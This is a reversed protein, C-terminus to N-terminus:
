FELIERIFHFDSIDPRNAEPRRIKFLSFRLYKEIVPPFQEKIKKFEEARPNVEYDENRRRTKERDVWTDLLYTKVIDINEEIPTECFQVMEKIEENAEPSSLYLMRQTLYNKWGSWNKFIDYLNIEHTGINVKFKADYSESEIVEAVLRKYKEQFEILSTSDSETKIKHQTKTLLVLLRTLDEFRRADKSSLTSQNQTEVKYPVITDNTRSLFNTKLLGKIVNYMITPISSSSVNLEDHVIVSYLIHYFLDEDTQVQKQDNNQIVNAYAHRNHYKRLLASIFLTLIKYNPSTTKDALLKRFFTSLLEFCNSCAFCIILVMRLNNEVYHRRLDPIYCFWSLHYYFYLPRTTFRVFTSRQDLLFALSLILACRCFDVSTLPKQQGGIFERLGMMNNYKAEQQLKDASSMANIPMSVLMMADAEFLFLNKDPVAIPKFADVHHFLKRFKLTYLKLAGYLIGFLQGNCGELLRIFRYKLVPNSSGYFTSMFTFVRNAMEPVPQEVPLEFGLKNESNIYAIYLDNAQTREIQLSRENDGLQRKLIEFMVKKSECVESLTKQHLGLIATHHEAMYSTENLQKEYRVSFFNAMLFVVFLGCASLSKKLAGEVYKSLEDNTVDDKLIAAYGHEVDSLIRSFIDPSIELLERLKYTNEVRFKGPKNRHMVVQGTYARRMESLFLQHLKGNAYKRSNQKSAPTVYFQEHHLTSSAALYETLNGAYLQSPNVYSKNRNFLISYLFVGDDLDTVNSPMFVLYFRTMDSRILDLEFDSTKGIIKQYETYNFVPRVMEHKRQFPIPLLLVWFQFNFYLWLNLQYFFSIVDEPQRLLDIHMFMQMLPNPHLQKNPVSLKDHLTFRFEPRQMLQGCAALFTLFTGNSPLLRKRIIENTYDISAFSKQISEPEHYVYRGNSNTFHGLVGKLQSETNEKFNVHALKSFSVRVKFIESIRKIDKLSRDVPEMKLQEMIYSIIFLSLNVLSRNYQQLLKGSKTLIYRRNLLGYDHIEAPDTANREMYCPFYSVAEGIRLECYDYRTVTVLRRDGEFKIGTVVVMKNDEIRVFPVGHSNFSRMSCVEITGRRVLKDDLQFKVGKMEFYSGDDYGGGAAIARHSVEDAEIFKTNTIDLFKRLDFLRCAVESNLNHNFTNKIFDIDLAPFLKRLDMVNFFPLLYNTENLTFMAEHLMNDTELHRQHWVLLRDDSTLMWHHSVSILSLSVVDKTLCVLKDSHDRQNSLVTIGEFTGPTKLYTAYDIAVFRENELNWKLLYYIPTSADVNMGDTWDVVQSRTLALQALNFNVNPRSIKMLRWMNPYIGNIVPSFYGFNVTRGGNNEVTINAKFCKVHEYALMKEFMQLPKTVMEGAAVSLRHALSKLDVHMNTNDVPKQINSLLKDIFMESYENSIRHLRAFIANSLLSVMASTISASDLRTVKLVYSNYANVFSMEVFDKGVPKSNINTRDGFLYIPCQLKFFTRWISPASSDAFVKEHFGDSIADQIQSEYQKFLIKTEDSVLSENNYLAANTELRQVITRAYSSRLKTLFHIFLYEVIDFEPINETNSERKLKLERVIEYIERPVTSSAIGPQLSALLHRNQYHVNLLLADEITLIEFDPLVAGDIPENWLVYYLNIQRWKYKNKLIGDEIISLLSKRSVPQLSETTM